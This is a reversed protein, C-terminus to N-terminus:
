SEILYWGARMPYVTTDKTQMLHSHSTIQEEVLQEIRRGNDENLEVIKLIGSEDSHLNSEGFYIPIRSTHKSRSNSVGSQELQAETARELLAYIGGKLLQKTQKATEDRVPTERILTLHGKNSEVVAGTRKLETRIAGPPIDGAYSRILEAFTPSEKSTGPVDHNFPLSNPKGESSSFRPDQMWGALVTASPAFTKDLNGTPDDSEVTQRVRKVEKRTLGTMVAVRSINTPRGRIGYHDTAQQVYARKALESFTRHSVGREILLRVLPGLLRFVLKLFKQSDQAMLLIM